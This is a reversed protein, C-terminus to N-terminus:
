SINEFDQSILFLQTHIHRLLKCCSLSFLFRKEISILYLDQDKKKQDNKKTVKVWDNEKLLSKMILILYLLIINDIAKLGWQPSFQPM